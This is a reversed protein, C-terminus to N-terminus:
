QLSRIASLVGGVAKGRASFAIVFFLEQSLGYVVPHLFVVTPNNIPYLPHVAL